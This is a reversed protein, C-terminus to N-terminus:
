NIDIKISQYFHYKNNVSLLNKKNTLAVGWINKGMYNEGYIKGCINKGM